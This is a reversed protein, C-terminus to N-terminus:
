KAMVLLPNFFSLDTRRIRGQLLDIMTLLIFKTQMDMDIKEFVKSMLNFSWTTEDIKFGESFSRYTNFFDEIALRSQDKKDSLLMCATVLLKVVPKYTNDPIETNDITTLIKSAEQYRRALIFLEALNLKDNFQAFSLDAKCLEIAKNLYTPYEALRNTEVLCEAKNIYSNLNSPDISLAKDFFEIARYHDGKMHLCAGCNNWLWTNKENIKKLAWDYCEFAEDFRNLFYLANGQGIWADDSNPNLRKSEIFFKLSAEFKKMEILVYGKKAWVASNNPDLELAKDCCQLAEEFREKLGILAGAKDVLASVYDSDLKLTENYCEIAQKYNKLNHLATGKNYWFYAYQDNIELAKDFFPLAESFKSKQFLATGKEDFLWEDVVESSINRAGEYFKIALKYNGSEFFSDAQKKFKQAQEKDTM